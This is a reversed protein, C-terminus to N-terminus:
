STIKHVLSGNTQKIAPIPNLFFFNTPFLGLNVVIGHNTNSAGIKRYTM